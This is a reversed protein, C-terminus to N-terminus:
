ALPIDAHLRWGGGHPAADLTGGLAELRERLGRLGLGSGTRALSSPKEGGWNQLEIELEGETASIRLRVESGPAHKMANTLGEQVIRYALREAEPSLSVEQPLPSANLRLGAAQAQDLLVEFGQRGGEEGDPAQLLDVLREMESLAQEGSRRIRAFRQAAEGQESTAVRGAGAQVVIVALHHAVVDHLERAIHARERQVSLRALNDQEAELERTRRSLSDLLGQRSRVAFGALWPGATAIVLPVLSGGDAALGVLVIAACSIGGFPPATFRGCGYAVACIAILAVDPPSIGLVTAVALYAALLIAAAQAARDAV